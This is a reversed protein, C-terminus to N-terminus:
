QEEERQMLYYMQRMADLMDSMHGMTPVIDGIAKITKDPNNVPVEEIQYGQGYHKVVNIRANGKLMLNISKVQSEIFDRKEQRTQPRSM